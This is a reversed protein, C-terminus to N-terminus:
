FYSCTLNKREVKMILESLLQIESLANGKEYIYYCIKM